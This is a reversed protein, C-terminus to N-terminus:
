RWEFVREEVKPIGKIKITFSKIEDDVNFVLTGSVHHGSLSPASVPAVSKGNYELSTIQKLDSQSLDVSHTNVWIDVELKDNEVEHPALEISVDGSATSGTTISPYSSEIPITKEEAKNQKTIFGEKSFGTLAFILGGVVLVLLATLLINETNQVKKMKDVQKKDKFM